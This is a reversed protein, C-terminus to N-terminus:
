WLGPLLRYRVWDTYARYGALEQRLLREELTIRLMFLPAALAMPLLAWWSGLLFPTALQYLLGGAYGPHRVFRYPGGTQVTQGEQIRVTTSFFANSATAWLVIAWGLVFAVLGALHLALPLPPSWGFRVDLGALIWAVLPLLGVALGAVVRDWGKAGAERLGKSREVLLAPNVPIMIIVHVASVVAFLGIFVWGWLWDWRGACLFLLVAMFLLGIVAKVVWMVVGRKVEPTMHPKVQTFDNM